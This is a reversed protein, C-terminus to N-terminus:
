SGGEDDTLAGDHQARALRSGHARVSRQEVDRTLTPRQPQQALGALGTRKAMFGWRCRLGRALDRDLAPIQNKKEKSKFLIGLFHRPNRFIM